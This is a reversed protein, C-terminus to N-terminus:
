NYLTNCLFDITKKHFDVYSLIFAIIKLDDNEGLCCIKIRKPFKKHTAKTHLCVINKRTSM